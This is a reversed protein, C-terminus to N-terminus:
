GSSSAEGFAYKTCTGNGNDIVIAEGGIGLIKSLDLKITTKDPIKSVYLSEINDDLIDYRISRQDFM